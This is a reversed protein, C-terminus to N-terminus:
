NVVLMVQISHSMGAATATVTIPYSGTPTGGGSQLQSTNGGSGACSSTGGILVLLMAFLLLCRARWLHRRGKCKSCRLSLGLPLVIVGWALFLASGRGTRISNSTSASTTALDLQVNGTAKLSALQTPNFTCLVNAPLQGCAFTFTGSTNGLPTVALTYDASQGQVVTGTGNGVIALNFDFGIGALALQTSGGNTSTFQLSGAAAGAQTPVFSVTVTCTAGGQLTGPASATGCNNNSLGFGATTGASDVKAVLGVVSSSTGTNTVTVTVPQGPQGVGTTGFQVLATPTTTIGAAAAGTGNLVAKAAVGGAASSATVAGVIPGSAAPAFLVGIQCSSGAALATGCTTSSRDIGFGTSVGFSLDSISSQGTNAVTVSQTASTSGILTSGFTLQGPTIGLVAPALGTGILKTSKPVVGSTTSTATLQGTRGGIGSPTFTISASCGAGAALSTTCTSSAITFVGTVALKLGALDSGGPNSIAVTQASSTVGIGTGTFTLSAPSMNLSPPLVGTGTVGVSIQPVGLSSSIATIVGTQTGSVVPSFFVPVTCQGGAALSPGCSGSGVSFPSTSGLVLGTLSATGPNTVTLQMASSVTGVAVSGFALHSPNVALQAASLGSGALGVVVPVFASNSSQNTGAITVSGIRTGAQSPSFNASITCNAGSALITGCTNSTLNFDGAVTFQLGTLSSPGNNTLMVSQPSSTQGATLTGFNVVAPNPSLGEGPIGYGILSFVAPLVGSSSSSVTGTGNQQGDTTPSFIIDATCSAGAALTAPCNNDELGFNGTLQIQLGDLAAQGNNTITLDQSQSSSDVAVSGFTMQTVNLSLGGVAIGTGDLDVSLPPVGVNTVSATLLGPQDGAATPSFVVALTCSSKGTLTGTCNNASAPVSYPGNLNLTLGNAAQRGLNSITITQESSTTGVPISAFSVENTSAQLVIPPTGAGSLVVSATPPEANSGTVTLTAAEAGIVSPSFTVQISCSANAALTGSCVTIGSDTPVSLAFDGAYTGSVAFTPGNMAIQGINKVTVTFLASSNGVVVAGLDVSSPTVSIIPPTLGTGSLNATVPAVGLTSTAVTLTATTAGSAVPTFTLAVTCNAGAALSAGCTTAGASFSTAGPGTFSFSPQSMPAGGANSITLTQASTPVGVEVSGFSLSTKSLSFAPPKLGTGTLAVNQARLGDSITLTGSAAGITSPAFTVSVTCSSGAVLTSGCNDSATFVGSASSSISTGIGTLPLGGSNKITVVLPQSIQGQITGPFALSTASLTDTPGTAGTGSLTASQTGSSDTVSLTGMAEGAVTPTFTVSVACATGAALSSGCTSSSKTFPASVNISAITLASGGVNSLSVNQVASTTFVQQLSFTLASPLLSVSAAQLGTGALAEVLQGGSVNADIVM